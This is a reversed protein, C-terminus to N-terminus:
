IVVGIEYFGDSVIEFGRIIDKLADQLAFGIVISAIGVGALMSSVNIGFIQLITLVTLIGLVSGILSKLMRIFTKNKKSSLIKSNKSEKNTLLRAIIHYILINLLIVVVSWFARQFWINSIIDELLKM